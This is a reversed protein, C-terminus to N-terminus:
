WNCQNYVIILQDPLRVQPTFNRHYIRAPQMPGHIVGDPSSQWQYSVTGSGGSVVVTMQATGGICETINLPETIVVLDQTITVNIV